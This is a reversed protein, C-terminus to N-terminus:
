LVLWITGGLQVVDGRDLGQVGDARLGNVFVGNASCLDEIALARGRRVLRAHRRSVLPDCLRLDCGHDRGIVAGSPCREERGPVPYIERLVIV